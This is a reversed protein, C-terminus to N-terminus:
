ARRTTRVKCHNRLAHARQGANNQVVQKNHHPTPANNATSPCRHQALRAAHNRGHCVENEHLRRRETQTKLVQCRLNAQETANQNHTNCRKDRLNTRHAHAQDEVHNNGLIGQYIAHRNIGGQRCQTNGHFGCRKRERGHQTDHNGRLGDDAEIEARLQPIANKCRQLPRNDSAHNDAEDERRTREKDRTRNHANEAHLVFAEVNRNLRQANHANEQAGHAELNHAGAVEM